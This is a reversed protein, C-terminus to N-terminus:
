GCDNDEDSVLVDVRQQLCEHVLENVLHVQRVQCGTGQGQAADSPDEFQAEFECPHLKVKAAQFVIVGHELRSREENWM